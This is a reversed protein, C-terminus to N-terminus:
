KCSSLGVCMGLMGFFLRYYFSSMFFESHRDRIYKKPTHLLSDFDVAEDDDSEVEEVKRKSGGTGIMTSGMVNTIINGM